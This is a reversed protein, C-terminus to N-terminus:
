IATLIVAVLAIAVGVRQTRALREGLFVSALLVVVVPYLSGLVAALALPGIRIATLMTINAVTDLVGAILAPSVAARKLRVRRLTVISATGMLTISVARAAVVPWMGSDVSTM